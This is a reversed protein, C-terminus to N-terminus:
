QYGESKGKKKVLTGKTVIISAFITLLSGCDTIRNVFHAFNFQLTTLVIWEYYHTTEIRELENLMDSHVSYDSDQCM